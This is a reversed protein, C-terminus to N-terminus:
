EWGLKNLRGKWVEGSGTCVVWIFNDADVALSATTASFGAPMVFRAENKWTIGCDKSYYMKGFDGGTAVLGDAYPLVYLNNMKPLAYQNASKFEQYMWPIDKESDEEVIKSWVVATKNNASSNGILFARKVDSNSATTSAIFNFDSSPLLKANEDIDDVMWSHGKDLSLMIENEDSMAFLEKGCVGLVTKVNAAASNWNALNEDTSTYVANADTVCVTNNDSVMTANKGFTKVKKWTGNDLIRLEKANNTEGLVVLKNNITGAKVSKYNKIENNVDIKNWKFSDAYEKHAVINVTYKRYYMGSSSYVYFERPQSFDLTDTSSFTSVTDTTLSKITVMGNHLSNVTMTVKSLDTGVPLSDPANTITYSYQDIALTGGSVTGKCLSDTVGDYAKKYYYYNLKGLTVGTIATDDYYTYDTDNDGLCSSVMCVTAFSLAFISIKSKM